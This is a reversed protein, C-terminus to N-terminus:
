GGLGKYAPLLPLQSCVSVGEQGSALMVIWLLLSMEESMGGQSSEKVLPPPFVKLAGRGRHAGPAAM